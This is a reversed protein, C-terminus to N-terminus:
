HKVPTVGLGLRARFSDKRGETLASLAVTVLAV